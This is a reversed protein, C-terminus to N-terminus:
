VEGRKARVKSEGASQGRSAKAGFRRQIERSQRVVDAAQKRRFAVLKEALARDSLALIEVALLGANAAGSRGVAVTAVPIGAPMQATSLLADLGGLGADLPVGIVPLTTHSAAVGALHAAKGAGAIIVRVGRRQARSVLARCREPTRHASVVQIDYPIGFSGLMEAAASMTDADKESGM